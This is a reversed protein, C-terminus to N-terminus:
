PISVKVVSVHKPRTVVVTYEGSPLQGTEFAPSNANFSQALPFGAAAVGNSKMVHLDFPGDEKVKIKKGGTVEVNM